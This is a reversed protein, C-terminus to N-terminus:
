NETEAILCPFIYPGFSGRLILESHFHTTSEARFGTSRGKFERRPGEELPAPLIRLLIECATAARARYPCPM